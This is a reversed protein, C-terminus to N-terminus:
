HWPRSASSCNSSAPLSPSPPSRWPSKAIIERLSNLIYHEEGGGEKECQLKRWLFFVISFMNQAASSVALESLGSMPVSLSFFVPKKKKWGSLNHLNFSLFGTINSCRIVQGSLPKSIIQGQHEALKVTQKEQQPNPSLSGKGYHEGRIGM